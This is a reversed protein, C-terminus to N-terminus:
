STLGLPAYFTSAAYQDLTTGTISEVIKGLLIFDNDSYVYKGSPGLPSQLIRRYMTDKWSNRMFMSTAVPIAFSDKSEVNSFYGYMPVGNKDLTERHFPIFASLGGQHILMEEVTIKEKNSGRTWPLYDGLTKKLDLKGEDYLKMLSITTACIKTVSAMDYVSNIKVPTSDQFSVTGFAKEYALKGDKLALVVCGPIAKKAIADTVISDITNLKLSNAAIANANMWEFTHASAIGRGYQLSDCVTVPLSGKYSLQGALLSVATAQTVPDDEYCVVLNPANCWNRAAYANAFQFLITKSAPLQKVLSIIGAGLGFNSAPSRGLNHIGVIFRTYDTTSNVIATAGELSLNSPAYFVHAKYKAQLQRGFENLTDTGTLIVAIKERKKYKLPFFLDDTKTVLTIANEAVLKRMSLIDKNLDAALNNTNIPQLNPLAYLYKALLVKKCHLEIDNWSLRGQKIAEQIKDLALPVDGPLCLMDNGAILSLVSAEGDPFFKKVGQMELADTFTLGTFGLSTRLLGNVNAPSLSTARNPTSDIAPIFLHAVMMSAVGADVLKRFPYLELSDLQKMSKNIVPLDYHSDVSVDGHGPFHKACAMVGLDQMGRTYALGFSAVKYKDEGFSRDNIVPNNPNNNIDIVPAYNVHIGLRRCQEAVINGYKYVVGADQMAGLMMQRPLPLVSDLIRMGVGWEADICTLLPTRAMAQLRNLTEAQRVPGGQFLVLGGINYRRILDEVEADLFIVERASNMSSLRVVMLQAIRQVPTLSNYVSDSWKKAAMSTGAPYQSFAPSIFLALFVPLLLKKM